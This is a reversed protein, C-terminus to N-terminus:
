FSAGSKTRANLHLEAYPAGGEEGMYYCLLSFIDVLFAREKRLHIEKLGLFSVLDHWVYLIARRRAAGTTGGLTLLHTLIDSRVIWHIAPEGPRSQCSLSQCQRDLANKDRRGWGCSLRNYQWPQIYYRLVCELLLQEAQARDRVPHLKLRM